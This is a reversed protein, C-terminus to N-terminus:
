PPFIVKIGYRKHLIEQAEEDGSKARIMLPDLKKHRRKFAEEERRKKRRERKSKNKYYNESRWINTSTGTSGKLAM